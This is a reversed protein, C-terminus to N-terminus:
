SKKKDKAAPIVLRDLVLSVCTRVDAFTLSLGCTHVTDCAHGNTLVNTPTLLCYTTSEPSHISAM